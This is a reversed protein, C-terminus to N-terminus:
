RWATRGVFSLPSDLTRARGRVHHVQRPSESKPRQVSDVWGRTLEAELALNEATLDSVQQAAREGSSLALNLRARLEAASAEASSNRTRVEDCERELQAFRAEQESAFSTSELTAIRERLQALQASSREITRQQLESEEKLRNHEKLLTQRERLVQAHKEDREAFTIELAHLRCLDGRRSSGVLHSLMHIEGFFHWELEKNCLPHSMAGWFAGAIQGEDSVERWRQKLELVTAARRIREAARAHRKELAKDVRKSLENPTGMQDVFWSHIMYPSTEPDMKYGARRAISYLDPLPLCTGLVPCHMGTDIQWIRLRQGAGQYCIQESVADVHSAGVVLAEVADAGAGLANIGGYRRRLLASRM